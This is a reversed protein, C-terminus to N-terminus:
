NLKHWMSNIYRSSSSQLYQKILNNNITNNISDPVSKTMIEIINKLIEDGIIVSTALAPANSIHKHTLMQNNISIQYNMFSNINSQVNQINNVLDELFAVLRNGLVMPELAYKKDHPLIDYGAILHIGDKPGKINKSNIGGHNTVLKINERAIIRVHDAKIGIGSTNENNELKVTSRSTVKTSIKPISFYSDLDCKESLYIRAKDNKFSKPCEIKINAVKDVPFSGMLGAIIDISGAGSSGKGGNGSAIGAHRDNGFVIHTNSLGSIITETETKELSPLVQQIFGGNIGSYFTINESAENLVKKVGQEKINSNKDMSAKVM